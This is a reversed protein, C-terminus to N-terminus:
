QEYREIEKLVKQYRVIEVGQKEIPLKVIMSMILSTRKALLRHRTSGITIEFYTSELVRKRELMKNYEDMSKATRLNGNITYYVEGSEAVM